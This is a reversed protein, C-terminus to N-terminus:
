TTLLKMISLLAGKRHMSQDLKNKRCRRIPVLMCIIRLPLTWSTLHGSLACSQVRSQQSVITVQCNCFAALMFDNGEQVQELGKCGLELFWGMASDM